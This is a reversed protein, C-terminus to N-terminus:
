PCSRLGLDEFSDIAHGTWESSPDFADAGNSDGSTVACSRRLTHDLLSLEGTGWATGPDVGPQGIVDITAGDCELAIADDGNFTLGATQDCASIASSLASSCVVHSQGAPLPGALAYATPTAAGNYYVALNCGDLSGDALATIEVAKYTSSGEVYESIILPRVPSPPPEDSCPLCDGGCDTGSETGDQVDNACTGESFDVAVAAQGNRRMTLAVDAVVGPELTATVADAVWFPPAGDTVDACRAPFAEGSFSVAGLPLGSLTFVSAEGTAVDFASTTVSSGAATIQVCHVDAPAALVAVRAQGLAGDSATDSDAGSCASLVASSSCLIGVAWHIRKHRTM